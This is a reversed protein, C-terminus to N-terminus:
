TIFERHPLRVIPYSREAKDFYPSREYFFNLRKAPDEAFANDNAVRADFEAQLMPNDDLMKQAIPEMIYPEAYEKREFFANFFGWSVFSDPAQPELLHMIVRLARQQTYVIFTGAPLAAEEVFKEVGCELRQRGEYPKVAFEIDVFKYREVALTEGERMEMVDIGHLRMIDVLHAFERPIAYAFPVDAHVKVRTKSYYPIDFDTPVRSYSTVVSGTISSEVEKSAVGKFHLAEAEEVGELVLPFPRHEHRFEHVTNVDAFYNADKLEKYHANIYNLAATNIAKTSYVRNEFPKLSHTEVLLLVRNQM